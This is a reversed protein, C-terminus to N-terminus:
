SSLRRFAQDTGAAQQGRREKCVKMSFNLHTEGELIEAEVVKKSRKADSFKRLNTFPTCPPSTITLLPDEQKLQILCAKRQGPVRLDWGTDIDVALGSTLGFRFTM